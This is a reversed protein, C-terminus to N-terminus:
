DENLHVISLRLIEGMASKGVALATETGAPVTMLYLISLVMRALRCSDFESM